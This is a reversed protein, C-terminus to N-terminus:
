QFSLSSLQLIFLEKAAWTACVTKPPLAGERGKHLDLLLTPSSIDTSHKCFTPPSMQLLIVTFPISLQLSLPFRLYVPM